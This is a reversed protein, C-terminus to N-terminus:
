SWIIYKKMYKDNGLEEIYYWLKQRNNVIMTNLPDIEFLVISDVIEKKKYKAMKVYKALDYYDCIKLLQTVNYKESYFHSLERFLENEEVRDNSYNVNQFECMIKNLQSENDLINQIDNPNYEDVSFFLNNENTKNTDM